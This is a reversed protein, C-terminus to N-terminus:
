TTGRNSMNFTYRYFLPLSPLSGKGGEGEGNGGLNEQRRMYIFRVGRYWAYLAAMKDSTVFVKNYRSANEVQGWDGARKLAYKLDRSFSYAANTQATTSTYKPPSDRDLIRRVSATSSLKMTESNSLLWQHVPEGPEKDKIAIKLLRRNQSDVSIGQLDIQYGVFKEKFIPGTPRVDFPVGTNSTQGNDYLNADTKSVDWALEGLEGGLGIEELLRRLKIQINTYISPFADTRFCKDFARSLYPLGCVLLVLQNDSADLQFATQLGYIRRMVGILQAIQHLNIVTYLRSNEDTVNCLIDVPILKAKQALKGYLNRQQMSFLQGLTINKYIHKNYAAVLDFNDLIKAGYLPNDIVVGAIRLVKRGALINVLAKENLFQEPTINDPILNQFEELNEPSDFFDHATDCLAMFEYFLRDGGNGGSGGVVVRGKRQPQEQQRITLQYFARVIGDLEEPKALRLASVVYEDAKEQSTIHLLKERLYFEPNRQFEADEMQAYRM